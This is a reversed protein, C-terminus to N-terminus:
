FTMPGGGVFTPWDGCADVVTFPVMISGAATRRVFFSFAPSAPPLTVDFQGALGVSGGPVDIVANRTPGFRVRTLWNEPVTSNVGAQLSVQRRGSGAPSTVVRVAPRPNCNPSTGVKEMRLDDFWARGRAVGNWTGLSAAVTVATRNGSNFRFSQRSWGSTGFLPASRVDLEYLGLHAGADVQDRTHSVNEVRIYGSVQYLSNPEVTLTQTVRAHCFDACDIRVSRAATRVTTAPMGVDHEWVFGGSSMWRERSWGAAFDGGSTADEFGPDRLLNARQPAMRRFAAASGKESLADNARILGFYQDRNIPPPNEFENRDLLSHWTALRIYPLTRVIEYAHTLFRQQQDEDVCDLDEQSPPAAPVCTSWGFETLYIPSSDAHAPEDMVRRIAQIGGSRDPCSFTWTPFRADCIMADRSGSYPHIALADWPLPLGGERAVAYMERLYPEPTGGLSGGLVIAKPDEAKVANYAVRLMVVYARADPRGGWFLGLNPENWIEFIKVRGRFDRVLSKLRYTLDAHLGAPPAEWVWTAGPPRIGCVVNHPCPPDGFVFYVELGLEIAKDVLRSLSQQYSLGFQSFSSDLLLRWSSGLRVCTAGIDRARELQLDDRARNWHPLVHVCNQAQSTPAQAGLETSGGLLVPFLTFGVLAAIWIRRWMLM